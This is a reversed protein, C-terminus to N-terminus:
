RGQTAQLPSLHERRLSPAPVRAPALTVIMSRDARAELSLSVDLLDKVVNIMHERSGYPITGSVRLASIAPDTVRFQVDYWRSLTALVDSAPRNEFTLQGNIWDTYESLTPIKSIAIGSDTVAAIQGMTVVAPGIGTRTVAVKGSEVAVNVDQECRYCRVVFRTGLVRTQVAGTQVTFPMRDVSKIDFLAEGTLLVTRTSIGFTAPIEMRSHPALTVQSGDVLTVTTRQGTSTAYSQAPNLTDGGARSLMWTLAAVVVLGLGISAFTRLQRTWATTTFRDRVSNQPKAASSPQLGTADLVGALLHDVEDARLPAVPDTSLERYLEVYSAYQEPHMAIWGEVDATEQPTTEKFWYREFLSWDFSRDGPPVPPTFRFTM